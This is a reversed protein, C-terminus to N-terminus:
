AEERKESLSEILLIMEKQTEAPLEARLKRSLTEERIGMAEALQWQRVDRVAMARRIAQNCKSM